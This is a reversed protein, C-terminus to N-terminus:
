LGPVAVTTALELGVLGLSPENRGLLDAGYIIRLEAPVGAIRNELGLYPQIRVKYRAGGSSDGDIRDGPSFSYALTCGVKAQQAEPLTWTYSAELEAAIEFQHDVEVTTTDYIRGEDRPIYEIFKGSLCLFVGAAPESDVFVVGGYGWHHKDPPYLVYREADQWKERHKDWDPFPMPLVGAPGLSVGVWDSPVLGGSGVIRFRLIVQIDMPGNYTALSGPQAPFFPPDQYDLRSWINYGPIWGIGATMWDIVGFELALGLNVVRASGSGEDLRNRSGDDDFRSVLWGYGGILRIRLDGADL